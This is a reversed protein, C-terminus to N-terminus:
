EFVGLLGEDVHGGKVELTELYIAALFASILMGMLWAYGTAFVLVEPQFADDALAAIQAGAGASVLGVGLVVAPVYILVLLVILTVLIMWRSGKTLAGSRELSAFVGLRQDVLAPLSVSWFVILFIGPVILLILGLFVGLWWLVTLGLMPLLLALGVEFSQRISFPKGRALALYGGISGSYIVSGLVLSVAIQLWYWPSAFMEIGTSSLVRGAPMEAYRAAMEAVLQRQILWNLGQNLAMLLLLFVGVTGIGDRIISFARSFVRGLDYSGV